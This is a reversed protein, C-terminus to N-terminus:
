VTPPEGPVPTPGLGTILTTVAALSRELAAADTGKAVLAVGNGGARYFPYSGLDLAPYDAQIAELGAAIAGEALGIAYVTRSQVPTGGQLTPGLTAFQGQMVRPVGAMVHVNGISFGPAISIASEILSPGRQLRGAQVVGGDQAM